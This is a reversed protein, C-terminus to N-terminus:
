EIRDSLRLIQADMATAPATMTRARLMTITSV